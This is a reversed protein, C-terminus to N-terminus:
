SPYVIDQCKIKLEPYVINHCKGPIKQRRLWIKVPEIEFEWERRIKLAPCRLLLWGDVDYPSVDLEKALENRTM